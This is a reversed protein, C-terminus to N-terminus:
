NLRRKAEKIKKYADEMQRQGWSKLIRQIEFAYVDVDATNPPKAIERFTLLWHTAFSASILFKMRPSRITEEMGDQFERAGILSNCRDKISQDTFRILQRTHAFANRIGKITELERFLSPTIFGLLYAMKIRTSFSGLPGDPQFLKDAVEEDQRLTARLCEELADDIWAAVALATGRDTQKTFTAIAQSFTNLTITDKKKKPM